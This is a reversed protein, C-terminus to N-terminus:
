ASTMNDILFTFGNVFQNFHALAQLFLYFPNKIKMVYGLFNTSPRIFIRYIRNDHTLVISLFQDRDSLYGGLQLWTTPLKTKAWQIGM